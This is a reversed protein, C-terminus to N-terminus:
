RPGIKGRWEAAVEPKGWAEYLKVLSEVATKTRGHAPGLNKLLSECGQKLVAEGEEFRKLEGLCEGVYGRSAGLMWHEPPLLKELGHLTGTLLPEAEAPKKMDMLLLGLNNMSVLTERADPGSVKRTADLVQRYMKEAEDTKKLRHLLQALNNQYTLTAHHEPGLSRAAKECVGRLLPEAEEGRNLQKLVSALLSETLLTEPHEAGYIRVKSAQVSRLIPEAEALRDLDQLASARISKATLTLTDDAGFRKTAATATDAALTQAEELKGNKQLVDALSTQSELTERADAGLIRTKGAISERHLAEAGALDGKDQVAMALFGMSTLTDPDDPGYGERWAELTRRALAEADDTRGQYIIAKALADSSALTQRDKPGRIRTRLEVARTLQQESDVYKGLSWYTRGLADRVAAEVAPQASLGAAKAAARDVTERVTIERGAAVAPDASGLMETLFDTVARAQAAEDRAVGSQTQAVLRQAEARRYMVTTAVLGAVVAAGVLGTAVAAGRHRKLLKSLRYAAGPPGAMVPEDALHRQIDSALEAATAYRRTRDKEMARMTIWDLDGRLQRTLTSADSGRQKAIDGSAPGLTGVRTSPKAPEVERIIRQIEGFAASRLSKPDFPLAGTLLEYLLVGLSYIDTRTDVDLGTMEAQEPSMYEPTGVLQGQETFVTQESLRQHLAKAVGFDIVKPSPGTDHLAVLVNSPKIDRHIIGKQHAHQVAMCVPLMLELRQRTTLRHLDCYQTIPVGQVHEMVFYPRGLESVGADLVKAVNPHDMMALAQREQQFRAIVRASDMGPKIVKLAVRRRVPEQQEAVYVVGFGGEGLRGLLRYPGIREPDPMAAPTASVPHGGERPPTTPM